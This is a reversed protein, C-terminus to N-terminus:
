DNKHDEFWKAVEDDSAQVGDRFKDVPFTVVALKVKENRKKFEAEADTHSVSIWSTLAAQLKEVTISRRVQEEFESVRVPPDQMEIMQRYRDLGVFQGNEQFAPIALIRQQVEQDTATIGLKRAEALAAEEEILQQVIRQDIGLQKLLREDMNGGFQNRYMQM